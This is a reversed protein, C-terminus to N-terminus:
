MGIGQLISRYCRCSEFCLRTCEQLLLKGEEHAQDTSPKLLGLSHVLQAENM